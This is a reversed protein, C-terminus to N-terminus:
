HDVSIINWTKRTELAVIPKVVYRIIFWITKEGKFRHSADPYVQSWSLHHLIHNVLSVHWINMSSKQHSVAWGKNSGTSESCRCNPKCGEYTSIFTKTTLIKLLVKAHHSFLLAQLEPLLFFMSQFQNELICMQGTINPIHM